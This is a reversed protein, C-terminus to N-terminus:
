EDRTRRSSDGVLMSVSGGEGWTRNVKCSSTARRCLILSTLRDPAAVIRRPSGGRPPREEFPTRHLVRRRLLM